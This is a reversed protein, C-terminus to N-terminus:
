VVSFGAPLPARGTLALLLDGGRGHRVAAGAATAVVEDLVAESLTPPPLRAARAVDFGHVVLEFTRTPLYADLLMGGGITEILPNGAQEVRVLVRELLAAVSAAPDDGLAAGAQRGREAVADPDGGAAAGIAPIAAVYAVPTELAVTTAPRDLYTDVTVLARAGHGVLSRLDWVGLGPGDWQEPRVQAVVSAYARGAEAFHAYSSM